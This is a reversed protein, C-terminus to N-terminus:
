YNLKNLRNIYIYVNFFLPFISIFIITLNATFFVCGITLVFIRTIFVYLDIKLIEQEENHVLFLQRTPGIVVNSSHWLFLWCFFASVYSWEDGFIKIFVFDGFLFVLINSILFMVFLISTIKILKTKVRKYDQSYDIVNRMFVQRLSKGVLIAPLQVIKTIFYYGGVTIPNFFFTFFFIPSFYGLLNVFNQPTVKTPYNKYKISISKLEQFRFFRLYKHSKLYYFISPLLVSFINGLFLGIESFKLFGLILQTSTGTLRRSVQISSMQNFKKFRLLRSYIINYSGTFFLLFPIVWFYILLNNSFVYIGIYLIFSLVFTLFLSIYVSLATLKKVGLKSNELLIAQNYTFSIVPALISAFSMISGVNGFEEPSYLRSLIPSSILNIAQALVSGSSVILINKLFKNKM